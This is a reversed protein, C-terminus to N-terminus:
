RLPHVIMHIVQNPLKAELSFHVHELSSFAICIAIIIAVGIVVRRV